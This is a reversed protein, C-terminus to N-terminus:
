FVSHDKAINKCNLGMIRNAKCWRRQLFYSGLILAEVTQSDALWHADPSLDM